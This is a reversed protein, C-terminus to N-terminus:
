AYVVAIPAVTLTLVTIDDQQGFAQAAAALAAGNSGERLLRTIREFGFLQGRANQAEVVGDTMLMLSDGAALTFHLAPLHLGSIAGLPLAGEVALEKGNLYPPLHGANILTANGDREIRLALCTVLGRGCLRENLLGLIRVPDSTFSSATRVSGVILTALMGAEIGKGAVDGVVILVSDDTLDPLVQFFDGGVERSPRYESSISFGPTVPLQAPILYQQVDRAAHVEGAFLAREETAQRQDRFLLALLATLVCATTVARAALLALGWRAFLDPVGPINWATMELVFWVFDAASWLMCLAALPRMRRPIAAYPWFVLFPILSLITHAFLSSPRVFYLILPGMFAPQNGAWFASIWAPFSDMSLLVLLAILPRPMRRQALAYYFPAQTLTMGINGLGVIVIGASISYDLLLVSTFENIRLAALSLCGLSLLLLERRSRDYLFMGLLVVALVGIIGFSIATPAYQVANTLATRARLADLLPVDGARLQLPSNIITGYPGGNMNAKRDTIRLALTSTGSTSDASLLQAPVPYSRISNLSSNGNGLNGEGGLLTGNLYLQYASYLSLQIAPQAVSRLVSLDVRCRVWLHPDSTSSKWNSYPQWGTEDVNTAVWGPDDGAHWVCQQVPINLVSQAALPFPFLLL